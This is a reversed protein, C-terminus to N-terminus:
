LLWFVCNLLSSTSSKTLLVEVTILAFIEFPAQLVLVKEAVAITLTIGESILGEGTSASGVITQKPVSIEKLEFVPYPSLKPCISPPSKVLAPILCSQLNM